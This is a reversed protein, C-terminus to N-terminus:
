KSLDTEENDDRLTYILDISKLEMEVREAYSCKAYIDETTNQPMRKLTKNGKKKKPHPVKHQTPPEDVPVLAFM